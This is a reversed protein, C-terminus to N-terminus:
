QEVSLLSMQAQDSNRVGLLYCQLTDLAQMARPRGPLDLLTSDGEEDEEEGDSPTASPEASATVAAVIDDDTPHDCTEV